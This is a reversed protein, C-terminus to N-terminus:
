YCNGFRGSVSKWDQSAGVHQRAIGRIREKEDQVAKQEKKKQKRELRLSEYRDIAKFQSEELDEKSVYAGKPSPAPAFSVKPAPERVPKIKPPQKQVKQANKLARSERAKKLNERCKQKQEETYERRVKGKKTLKKAQPPPSPEEPDDDDRHILFTDDEMDLDVEPQNLLSPPPPPSPDNQFIDNVQPSDREVVMPLDLVPEPRPPPSTEITIQLNKPLNM